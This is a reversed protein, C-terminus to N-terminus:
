AGDARYQALRRRLSHVPAPPPEFPLWTTILGTALWALTRRVQSSVVIVAIGAGCCCGCVFAVLILLAALAFGVGSSTCTPTAPLWWRLERVVELAASWPM